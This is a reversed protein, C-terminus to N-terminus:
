RIAAPRTNETQILPIAGGYSTVGCEKRNDAFNVYIFLEAIKQLAICQKRIRDDFELGVTRAIVAIRLEGM